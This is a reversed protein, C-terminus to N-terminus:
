LWDTAMKKMGGTDRRKEERKFSVCRTVPFVLSPLPTGMQPWVMVRCFKNSYGITRIYIYKRSINWTDMFPLIDPFFLVTLTDRSNNRKEKANKPLYSLCTLRRKLAYVLTIRNRKPKLTCVRQGNWGSKCTHITKHISSPTIDRLRSM